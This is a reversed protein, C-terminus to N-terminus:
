HPPRPPYIAACTIVLSALVLVTAVIEILLNLLNTFLM